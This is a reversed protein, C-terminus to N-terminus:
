KSTPLLRSTALAATNVLATPLAVLCLAQPIAAALTPLVLFRTPALSILVVTARQEVATHIDRYKALSIQGALM